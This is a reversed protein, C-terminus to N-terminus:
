SQLYLSKYLKKEKEKEKKMITMMHESSVVESHKGIILLNIKKQRVGINM